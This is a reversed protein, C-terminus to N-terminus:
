DSDLIRELEEQRLPKNLYGAINLNSVRQIDIPNTSSTLVVIRVNNKKHFSLNQFSHLFEFGDMVPMSLDLLILDPCIEKPSDQCEKEIFHLAEAGNMVDHTHKIGPIDSIVMKNIYNSVPDDDVLLACHYNKM